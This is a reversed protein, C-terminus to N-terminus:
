GLDFLSYGIKPVTKIELRARALVPNVNDVLGKLRIQGDQGAAGFAKSALRSADLLAPMVRLLAAVAKVGDDRHIRARQGRNAVERTRLDLVIGNREV